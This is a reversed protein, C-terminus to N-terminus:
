DMKVLSYKKIDKNKIGNKINIIMAILILIAGFSIGAILMTTINEMPSILLSPIIGEKGFFVEM